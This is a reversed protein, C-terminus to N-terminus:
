REMLREGVLDLQRMRRRQAASEAVGPALTPSGSQTKVLMAVNHRSSMDHRARTVPPGFGRTIEFEQQIGLRALARLLPRDSTKPNECVDDEM